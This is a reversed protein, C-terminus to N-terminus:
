DGKNHCEALFRPLRIRYLERARCVPSKNQNVIARGLLAVLVWKMFLENGKRPQPFPHMLHLPMISNVPAPDSGTPTRAASPLAVQNDTVHGFNVEQGVNLNATDTM